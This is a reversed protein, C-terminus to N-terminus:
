GFGESEAEEGHDKHYEEDEEDSASAFMDKILREDESDEAVFTRLLRDIRSEKDEQGGDQGDVAEQKGVKQKDTATWCLAFAMPLEEQTAARYRSVVDGLAAVALASFVCWFASERKWFDVGYNLDYQVRSDTLPMSGIFGQQACEQLSRRLDSVSAVIVCQLVAIARLQVGPCHAASSVSAFAM